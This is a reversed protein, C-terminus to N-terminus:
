GWLWKKGFFPAASPTKKAFYKIKSCNQVNRVAEDAKQLIKNEIRASQRSKM